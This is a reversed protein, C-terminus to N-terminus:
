SDWPSLITWAKTLSGVSKASKLISVPFLFLLHIQIEIELNFQLPFQFSIVFNLRANSLSWERGYQEGFYMFKGVVGGGVKILMFPFILTCQPMDLKHKVIKHTGEASLSFSFYVLLIIITQNRQDFGQLLEFGICNM